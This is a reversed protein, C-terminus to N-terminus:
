RKGGSGVREFQNAGGAGGAGGPGDCAGDGGGGLFLRECWGSGIVKVM